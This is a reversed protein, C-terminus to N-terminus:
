MSALKDRWAIDDIAFQKDVKAEQGWYDVMWGDGIAVHRIRVTKKNERVIVYYALSDAVPQTIYRGVLKGARRAKEDNDDLDAKQKEWKEILSEWLEKVM